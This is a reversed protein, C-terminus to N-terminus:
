FGGFDGHGCPSVDFHLFGVDMFASLAPGPEVDTVFGGRAVGGALRAGRIEFVICVLGHMVPGCCCVNWQVVAFFAFLPEDVIFQVRWVVHFVPCGCVICGVTEGGQNRTEASQACRFCWDCFGTFLLLYGKAGYRSFLM